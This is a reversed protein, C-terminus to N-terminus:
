EEERELEELDIEIVTGRREEEGTELKRGKGQSEIEVGSGGAKIKSVVGKWSYGCSPCRYSGMITITVRGMADPLPSVVQWTKDPKVGEAGCNPCKNPEQVKGRRPMKGSTGRHNNTIASILKNQTAKSKVWLTKIRHRQPKGV